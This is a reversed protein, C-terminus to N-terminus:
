TCNGIQNVAGYAATADAGYRNVLGLIALEALSITVMQVGTPVGIRLVGELLAPDIWLARRL